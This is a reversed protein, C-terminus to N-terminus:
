QHPRDKAFAKVQQWTKEKLIPQNEVSNPDYSAIIYEAREKSEPHTSLWSLYGDIATSELSMSFLFNALHEPSIGANQLYEAAKLDAEREQDRDFAKSSLMKAIEAASTGSSGTAASVLTAMGIERVLRKMVHNLEIHALEHGLVGTLEEQKKVDKILGTYVTLHGGPMAFANVQENELVHLKIKGKDISNARCLASVLSDMAQLVTDDTVEKSERSYIKWLEEGLTEELSEQNEEVKLVNVWDIQSLAAWIVFFSLLLLVGQLLLKNM